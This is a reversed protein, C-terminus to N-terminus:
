INNGDEDYCNFLTETDNHIVNKYAEFEEKIKKFEKQLNEHEHKLHQYVENLKLYDEDATNKGKMEEIIKKRQGCKVKLRNIVKQNEENAKTLVQIEDKQKICIKTLRAQQRELLENQIRFGKIEKHSEETDKNYTKYNKIYQQHTKTKIHNKYSVLDCFKTNKCRCIYLKRNRQYKQYPCKDIYEGTEEDFYPEYVFEDIAVIENKKIDSM